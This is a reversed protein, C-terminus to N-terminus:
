VWHRGADSASFLLMLFCCCPALYCQLPSLLLHAVPLCCLVACGSLLFASLTVWCSNCCARQRGAVRCFLLLTFCSHVRIFANEPPIKHAHAPTCCITSIPVTHASNFSCLHGRFSLVPPGISRLHLTMDFLHTYENHRFRSHDLLYPMAVAPPLLQSCHSALTICCCCCM